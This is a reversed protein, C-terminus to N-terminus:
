NSDRTLGICIYVCRKKLADLLASQSASLLDARGSIGHYKHFWITWIRTYLLKACSRKLFSFTIYVVV